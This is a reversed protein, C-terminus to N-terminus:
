VEEPEYKEFKQQAFDKLDQIASAVKPAYAPAFQVVNENGSGDYQKLTLYGHETIQIEIDSQGKILM